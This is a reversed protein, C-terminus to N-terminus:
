KNSNQKLRNIRNQISIETLKNRSERISDIFQMRLTRAIYLWHSHLNEPNGTWGEPIVSHSTNRSLKTGKDTHIILQGQRVRVNLESEKIM